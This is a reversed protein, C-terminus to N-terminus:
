AAGKAVELWARCKEVDALTEPRTVLEAEIRAMGGIITSHDRNGLRRQIQAITWCAELRLLYATLHRAYSTERARSQGVIEAEDFGTVSRVAAFIAEGQAARRAASVPGIEVHAVDERADRLVKAIEAPTGEVIAIKM